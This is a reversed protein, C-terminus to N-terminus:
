IVLGDSETVMINNGRFDVHTFMVPSDIDKITKQLWELEGKLDYTMLSQCNCEEYLTQLDYSNNAEKYFSGFTDLLSICKKKIPVDMAHIQALRKGLEDVLKADNQEDSRFPKHKYYKLIQGSEFLGYIKPGLNYESVLVSIITDSLRENGENDMNNFHKAEYLRLVVEQPETTDSNRLDENLACYYLQNTLGGSLRKVQIDDISVQPWVGGLYDSCLQLCIDKIDSPTRGRQWEVKMFDVIPEEINNDM